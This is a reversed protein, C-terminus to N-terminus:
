ERCVVSSLRCVSVSANWYERSHTLLLIIQELSEYFPKPNARVFALLPIPKIVRRYEKKQLFFGLLNRYLRYVVVDLNQHYLKFSGVLM